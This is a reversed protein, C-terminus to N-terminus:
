TLNDLNTVKIKTSKVTKINKKEHSRLFMYMQNSRVKPFFVLEILYFFGPLSGESFSKKLM